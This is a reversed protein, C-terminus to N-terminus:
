SRRDLVLGCFYFGIYWDIVIKNIEDMSQKDDLDHWVSHHLKEPIYLVHKKDLHHAECGTFPENLPIFSLKRRRISKAKAYINHMVKPNKRRYDKRYNDLREKNTQYYEQAESKIQEKHQETYIRRSTKIKDQNNMRWQRLYERREEKHSDYYQRDYAKKANKHTDRWKKCSEANNM